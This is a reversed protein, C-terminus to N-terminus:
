IKIYKSATPYEKELNGYYTIMEEERKKMHEEKEASAKYMGRENQIHRIARTVSEINPFDYVEDLNFRIEFGMDKLLRFYAYNRSERSRQDKRLLNEVADLIKEERM